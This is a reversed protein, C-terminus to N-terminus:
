LAFGTSRPSHFLSVFCLSGNSHHFLVAALGKFAKAVFFFSPVNTLGIFFCSFVSIHVDVQCARLNASLGPIFSNQQSKCPFGM